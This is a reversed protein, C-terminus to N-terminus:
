RRGELIALVNEAHRVRGEAVQWRRRAEKGDGIRKTEAVWEDYLTKDYLEMGKTQKYESRRSFADVAGIRQPFPWLPDVPSWHILNGMRAQIRSRLEPDFEFSEKGPYETEDPNPELGLFPMHAVLYFLKEGREMENINM